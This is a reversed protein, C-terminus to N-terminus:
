PTVKLIVSMAEWTAPNTTLLVVANAPPNSPYDTVLRAWLEPGLDQAAGAYAYVRVGEAALATQLGLLISLNANLAGLEVTLAAIQAGFTVKLEALDPPPPLGPTAMAAVISAVISEALALQADFSIPPMGPLAVLTDQLAVVQAELDPYTVEIAHVGGDVGATAGPVAVGLDLEGVVTIM